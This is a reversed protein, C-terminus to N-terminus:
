FGPGQHLVKEGGPPHARRWTPRDVAGHRGPQQVALDGVQAAMVVPAAWSSGFRMQLIRPAAKRRMRSVARPCLWDHPHSSTWHLKQV